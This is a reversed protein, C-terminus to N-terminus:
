EILGRRQFNDFNNKRGAKSGALTRKFHDHAEDRTLARVGEARKRSRSVGADLCFTAYGGPHDALWDRLVGVLFPSLPVRRTTRMSQNRKREHITLVRASLDVDALRSRVLESRRAGTHAAVAFMPYLFSHRAHERVYKLLEAIEPLTLFLCDWLDAQEADTLGGRVIQQEIEPWTQFPPKEALKPYKVGSHPFRGAVLSHKVGWNWVTRLTIVAKKITVPTVKRGRRGKDKSRKDVYRQLDATTLKQVAFSKGFFCYLQKEHLRMVYLTSDELSGEPLSEFYRQFLESLKLTRPVTLPAASKGGSILFDGLDAGDPVTLWGREIALLTSEVTGLLSEADRRKTTKLSRKFKGDALRVAVKFVGTRPDQELWAM